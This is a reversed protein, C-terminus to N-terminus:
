RRKRKNRLLKKLDDTIRQAMVQTARLEAIKSPFERIAYIDPVPDVKQQVSERRLLALQDTDPPYHVFLGHFVDNRFKDFNQIAKVLSKIESGIDSGKLTHGALALLAGCKGQIGTHGIVMLGEPKTLRLMERIIVGTQNEIWCWRAALEGIQAFCAPNPDIPIHYKAVDFRGGTAGIM